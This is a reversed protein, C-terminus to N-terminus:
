NVMLKELRVRIEPPISIATPGADNFACCATIISGTAVQLQNAAFEFGFTVTKDSMTEVGCGITVDDEFRVPNSYDCRASVRPWSITKGDVEM